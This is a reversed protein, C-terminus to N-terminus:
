GRRFPGVLKALRPIPREPARLRIPASSSRGMDRGLEKARKEMQYGIESKRGAKDVVDLTGSVVAEKRSIQCFNGVRKTPSSASFTYDDGELQANSADASALADTQWEHKVAKADSRGISSMGPNGRRSITSPIKSTKVSAKAAYADYTNAIQAM